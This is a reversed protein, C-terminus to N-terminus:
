DYPLQTKLKKLFMWVSKWLSKANWGVTYLPGWSLVMVLMHQKNEQHYGNQSPHSPIETYNKRKIKEFIKTLVYYSYLPITSMEM